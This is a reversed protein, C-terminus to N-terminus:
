KSVRLDNLHMALGLPFTWLWRLGISPKRHPSPCLWFRWYNIAAKVKAKFPVQMSSLESYCMTSAVPSKMRVKVISATLGDDLYEIFKLVNSFYRMKFGEAAMRNWVLAEPCFREGKIEPFLFRRLIDTKFVEALDGLISYKFRIDLSTADIFDNSIYSLRKGEFTMDCGSLGVFSKDRLIVSGEKLIFEVACEPLTDDSDVIYFLDGKALKLGQNIATHKGGNQKKIYRIAFLANAAFRKVVAETDDTSGDDVILWEFDKYSQQCLSNYLNELIYARNYTPTFITVM